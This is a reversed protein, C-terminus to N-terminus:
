PKGGSDRPLKHAMSVGRGDLPGGTQSDGTTAGWGTLSADSEITMDAQHSLLSKGNWRELHSIWWDLEERSGPSLKCPADYSQHARELAVSLDRQLQRYFLPVPPIAQSMATMKGLLWSLERASLRLLRWM